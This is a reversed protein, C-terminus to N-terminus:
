AEMSFGELPMADLEAAMGIHPAPITSTPAGARTLQECLQRWTEREVELVRIADALCKENGGRRTSQVLQRFIFNYLSSVNEALQGGAQRDIGALLEAMVAQAHLTSRLAEEGRNERRQALARQASRLAADLLMLHLKQPPATRVETALYDNRASSSM